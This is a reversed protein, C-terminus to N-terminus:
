IYTHIYLIYTFNIFTVIALEFFIYFTTIIYPNSYYNGTFSELNDLLLFRAVETPIKAIVNKGMVQKGSVPDLNNRDAPSQRRWLRKTPDRCEVTKFTNMFIDM